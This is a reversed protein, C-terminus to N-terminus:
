MYLYTIVKSPSLASKVRVGVDGMSGM